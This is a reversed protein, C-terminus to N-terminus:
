FLSLGGVNSQTSDLVEYANSIRWGIGLNLKPLRVCLLVALSHLFKLVDFNVM